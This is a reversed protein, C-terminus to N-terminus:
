TLPTRVHSVPGGVGTGSVRKLEREPVHFYCAPFFKSPGPAWIFVWDYSCLVLYPYLNPVLTSYFPKSSASHKGDVSVGWTGCNESSEPLKTLKAVVSATLCYSRNGSCVQSVKLALPKVAGSHVLCGLM